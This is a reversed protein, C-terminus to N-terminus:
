PFKIRTAEVAHGSAALFGRVEVARGVLLNAASGNDYRLDSRTTTVTTGRVVFSRAAANASEISGKLDFERGQEEADSKVKVSRAVLVGSRLSGEVQVRVGLGLAAANPAFTASAANVPRGDLQFSTSSSFATILGKVEASDRDEVARVATGFATIVRRGSADPTTRLTLNVISGVALNIPIGSAGAYAYTASGVRMTQAVADVQTVSGRLKYSTASAKLEVRTARLRPAAPVSHDLVGYAEVVQGVRLASLGGALSDDFVTLADVAVSQGLSTFAGASLLEVPGLLASDFRVRSAKATTATAGVQPTDADIEVTMGLRLETRQRGGGSGDVVSASSDDFVIDNVIVSGFGSIPGASYNSPTASGTGGTGVGGGCGALSFIVALITLALMASLLAAAWGRFVTHMESTLHKM